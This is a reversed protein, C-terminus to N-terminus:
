RRSLPLRKLMRTAFAVLRSEGQRENIVKQLHRRAQSIDKEFWFIGLELYYKQRIRKKDVPSQALRIAEEYLRAGRDKHGKRMNLLGLTATPYPEKHIANMIFRLYNNAQKIHGSEICAFVINNALLIQRVDMEGHRLPLLGEYEKVMSMAKQAGNEEMAYYAIIVGAVWIKLNSAINQESLLEEAIEMAKEGQDLNKLAHLYFVYLDSLTNDYLISRDRDALLVASTFKLLEDFDRKEAIVLAANCAALFFDQTRSGTDKTMAYRFCILAQSPDKKRYYAVGLNNWVASTDEVSGQRKLAAIAQNLEGIELLARALRAWMLPNKQEFGILYRLSPIADENKGESFALDALFAVANENLPDLAVARRLAALARDTNKLFVYAVAMNSFLASSNQRETSAIRFSQIALEFEGRLLRLAGEFLRAGFNLPDISVAKLVLPLSAEIGQRQLHFYAPRVNAEVDTDLDMRAFMSEADRFKGRALLNEALRHDFVNDKGLKQGRELFHAEGERNGALDALDALRNLFSPSDSFRESKRELAVLELAFVQEMKVWATAALEKWSFHTAKMAEMELIDELPPLQVTLPSTGDEALVLEIPWRQVVLNKTESPLKNSLM